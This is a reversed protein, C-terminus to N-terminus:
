KTPVKLFRGKSEIQLFIGGVLSMRWATAIEEPKSLRVSGDSDLHLRRGDPTSIEFTYNSEPTIKFLFGPM